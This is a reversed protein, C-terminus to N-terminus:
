LRARAYPAYSIRSLYLYIVINIDLVSAYLYQPVKACM